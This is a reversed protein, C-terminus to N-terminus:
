VADGHANPRCRTDPGAPPNHCEAAPALTAPPPHTHHGASLAGKYALASGHLPWVRSSPHLWYLVRPGSGPERIKQWASSFPVLRMLTAMSNGNDLESSCDAWGCYLM